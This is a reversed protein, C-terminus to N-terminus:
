TRKEQPCLRLAIDDNIGKLVSMLHWFDVVFILLCWPFHKRVGSGKKQQNWVMETFVCFCMPLMGPLIETGLDIFAEGSAASVLKMHLIWGANGRAGGTWVMFVVFLACHHEWGEQANCGLISPSDTPYLSSFHSYKDWDLGIALSNWCDM